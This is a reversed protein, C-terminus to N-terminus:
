KGQLAPDDPLITLRLAHFSIDVNAEDWSWPALAPMFGEGGVPIKQISRWANEDAEGAERYYFSWTKGDAIIAVQGREWTVNMANRPLNKQEFKGNSSISGSISLPGDGNRRVGYVLGLEGGNWLGIGAAWSDQDKMYKPVSYQAELRFHTPKINQPVVFVAKKRESDWIEGSTGKFSVLVDQAQAVKVFEGPKRGRPDDVRWDQAFAPGDAPTWIAEVSGDPKVTSKTKFIKAPDFKAGPTKPTSGPGPAAASGQCWRIAADFLKWGSDNLTAATETYLPLAVRKGPATFGSAMNAGTDYAFMVVHRDDDSQRAVVIAGDAPVGWALQSPQTAFEVKGSLGATLPSDSKIVDIQTQGDVQGADRRKRGNWRTFNMRAFLNEEWTLVPEKVDKFKEGVTAGDVTESILVMSKGDADGANAEAHDKITFTANFKKELHEKVAKDGNNLSKNGVVFLVTLPAAQILAAQKEAAVAALGSQADKQWAALQANERKALATEGYTGEFHKIEDLLPQWKKAAATAALPEFAKKAALEKEALAILELKETLVQKDADGMDAIKLRADAIKGRLILLEVLIKGAGDPAGSGALDMPDLEHPQMPLQPGKFNLYLGRSPDYSEVKGSESQNAKKRGAESLHIEAGKKGGLAQLASVEFKIVAAIADLEADVDAKAPAYASQGALKKLEPLEKGLDANVTRGLVEALFAAFAAKADKSSASAPAVRMTEADNKPPADNKRPETQAVQVASAGGAYATVNNLALFDTKSADDKKLGYIEVHDIFLGEPSPWPGEFKSAEALVSRVHKWQNESDPQVVQNYRGMGGPGRVRYSVTITKLGSSAVDFEISVGDEKVQMPHNTGIRWKDNVIKLAKRGLVNEVSVQGPDPSFTNLTGDKFDASWLAHGKEVPPAEHNFELPENRVPEPQLEAKPPQAREPPRKVAPPEVAPRVPPDEKAAVQKSPTPRPPAGSGNSLVLLAVLGAALCGAAVLASAPLGQERPAVVTVHRTTRDGVSIPALHGTTGRKVESSPKVQRTIPQTPAVVRRLGRRPMACSTKGRFNLAQVVGGDKAADLDEILEQPSAYRDKSDKAMMKAVIAGWAEPVEPNLDCVSKAEETLHKAMISAATSGDFPTAGTLMHYLSGGLSYIDSRIDVDKEGRAQEPSIYHPTGVAQGSQTLAADEGASESQKALGLDCLKAIGQPTIMINEPKVDRHVLGHKNAYSLADAIQRFVSHCDEISLKGKKQLMQRATKGEVFEMAFFTYGAEEGCDIGNIINLHNLKASLRAERLFREKFLLDAALKPPLIKLAVVRDMGIQRARFVAGMGGQGVKELIEFGAIVTAGRLAREIARYQEPTIQGRDQLLEGLEKKVGKAELQKVGRKADEVQSPTVYGRELALEAFSKAGGSSLKRILKESDRM